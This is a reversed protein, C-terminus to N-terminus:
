FPSVEDPESDDTSIKPASGDSTSLGSTTPSIEFCLYGDEMFPTAKYTDSVELDYYRLMTTGRVSVAGKAGDKPRRTAYANDDDKDVPNLAIVSRSEDFLFQVADPQGLMEFARWTLSILGNSLVTMEADKNAAAADKKNFAEFAM